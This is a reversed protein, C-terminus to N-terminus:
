QEKYSLISISAESGTNGGLYLGFGIQDPTLFNTRAVSHIQQWAIGDDSISIIRDTDDDEFRIWHYVSTNGSSYLSNYSTPSNFKQITTTGLEAFGSMRLIVLEGTTNDRWFVIPSNGGSAPKDGVFKIHFDITYPPTPTSKYWGRINVSGNSSELIYIRKNTTDETYDGSGQNLATWTQLNPDVFAIGDAGVIGDSGGSGVPVVWSGDGRLFKEEDGALPQPVLGNAGDEADSAGTMVVDSDDEDDINQVVGAVSKVLGTTLVGLKVKGAGTRIAYNDTGDDVDAIELGVLTDITGSPNETALVELAVATEIDAGSGNAIQAAVARANTLYAGAQNDVRAHVGTMDGVPTGSSGSQNIAEFDAARLDAASSDNGDNDHTLKSRLAAHIGSIIGTGPLELESMLWAIGNSIAGTFKGYLNLGRQIDSASTGESHGEILSEDTTMSATDGVELRGDGTMQALATGADDEWTQLPNSQTTHAQVRLQIADVDGDIFTENAM